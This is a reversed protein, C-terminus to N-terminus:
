AKFGLLLMFYGLILGSIFLIGMVAFNRGIHKRNKFLVILGIGANSSLGALLAPFGLIGSIYAQTIIISSACNPILGVLAAFLPQVAASGEMFSVIKDEGIKYLIFGFLLNLILIYVFTRLAHSLPHIFFKDFPKGHEEGCEICCDREPCVHETKGATFYDLIEGIFVAYLIKVALFLLINGIKVGSSIMIILGEDSVSLFAAILTGTKILGKDYLKACMVSFGCEPVAGLIGAAVPAGYGMLAREIKDKNRASEILEMLIYILLVFPFIKLSDLSADVIVEIM